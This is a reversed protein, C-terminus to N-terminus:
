IGSTTDTATEVTDVVEKFWNAYVSGDDNTTTRKIHGTEKSASSSFTMKISKAEAKEGSTSSEIDVPVAICRYLVHRKKRKDGKFEFLLAFPSVTDEKGEVITNGEITQGLIDTQFSTPVDLVELEGDYGKNETITAYEPDDDAPVDVKEYKKKLSINVAGSLKVPAAYTVGSEAEETIKSYYVNKLGYNVKNETIQTAGM